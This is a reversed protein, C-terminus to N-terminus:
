KFNRVKRKISDLIDDTNFNVLIGLRLKTINLYTLVQKHHIDKLEKVSKIEIIVKNEVLLDLRLGVGLDQGLYKVAVPVEKQVELGKSELDLKLAAQYISELLGPGLDNYVNFISGRIAYSIENESM